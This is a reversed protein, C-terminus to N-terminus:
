IGFVVQRQKMFSRGDDTNCGVSVSYIGQEFILNDFLSASLDITYMIYKCDSDDKLVTVGQRFNPVNLLNTNPSITDGSLIVQKDFSLHFSSEVIENQWRACKTTAYLLSSLDIKSPRRCNENPFGIITFGVQANMTDPQIDPSSFVRNRLEIDCISADYSLGCSTLILLTTTVLVGLFGKAIMIPTKKKYYCCFVRNARRAFNGIIVVHM